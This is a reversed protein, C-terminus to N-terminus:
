KRKKKTQATLLLMVVIGMSIGISFFLCLVGARFLLLWCFGLHVLKQYHKSIETLFLLITGIGACLSGVILLNAKAIELKKQSQRAEETASYGGNSIFVRGNFATQYVGTETESKNLYCDEYLKELIEKCQALTFWDVGDLPLSENAVKIWSHQSITDHFEKLTFEAQNHQFNMGNTVYLFTLIKDLLENPNM